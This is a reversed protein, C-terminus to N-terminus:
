FRIGMVNYRKGDRILILQGNEIAKITGNVSKIDQWEGNILELETVVNGQEVIRAKRIPAGSSNKVQFYARLGKIDTDGTPFYLMNNAGLFLNNESAPIVGKVYSGVFDASTCSKTNNSAYIHITHTSFQPNVVDKTPKILYPKGASYNNDSHAITTFELDLVDGSLEASNLEMLVYDTGFIGELEKNYSDFPLCITNYMDAKFSRILQPKKGTTGDLATIVSADTENEDVIIVDSAATAALSTLYGDAGSNTNALQLVYDGEAPILVNSITVTGNGDKGQTYTFVNTNGQNIDLKYTGYNTGVVDFTFTYVGATAHINWQAYASVSGFHIEQPNSDLDRTAGNGLIADEFPIENNPIDVTEGGEYTYTLTMSALGCRSHARTNRLRLTYDGAEPITICGPMDYSRPFSRGNEDVEGTEEVSSKVENGDLLEVVFIHKGNGSSYASNDVMNMAVKVQCARTAKVSWTATGPDSNDTYRIYPTSTTTNYEINGDLTARKALFEFGPSAFDTIPADGDYTLIINKISGKGHGRISRLEITYNGAEPIVISGDLTKIQNAEKNNETDGDPDAPDEALTGVPNSNADLIKVEFIHKNSGVEPGLDLAVSIYCARTASISWKALLANYTAENCIIYHPESDTYLSLGYVNASITAADASCYYGPSAFNTSPYTVPTYWRPDGLDSGDTGAGRAPSMSVGYTGAYTYKNNALDNFLPDENIDNGSSPTNRHAPVNHRLCKLVTGGYMQTAKSAYTGDPLSAPNAFICNSVTIRASKRSDIVGYTSNATKICNYFTCHDVTMLYDNASDDSLAEGKSSVAIVGGDFGSFKAFTSNTIDVRDCLHGSSGKNVYLASNTCDHFYCSDIKIHDIHSDSEAVEIVQNGINYFECNDLDLTGATYVRIFHTYATSNVGTADQKSGDFKIGRISVSKNSQVKIFCEVEVIPHANEAAKVTVNKDFVIYNNNESYTGDALIIVDGDSAGQLAAILNNASHPSTPTINIVNGANIALSLVLVSILLFLKKM